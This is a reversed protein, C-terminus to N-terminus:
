YFGIVTATTGTAMVRLPSFWITEGEVVSYTQQNGAHDVTCLNGSQTVRLFRYVRLLANTDHPTIAEHLVASLSEDRRTRKLEDQISM